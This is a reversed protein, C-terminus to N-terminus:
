IMQHRIRQIQSISQSSGTLVKDAPYFGILCGLYKVYDLSQDMTITKASNQIMNYNNMRQIKLGSSKLPLNLSCRTLLTEYDNVISLKKKNQLLFTYLHLAIYM